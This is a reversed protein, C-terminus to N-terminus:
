GHHDSGPFLGLIPESASAWQGARRAAPHDQTEGGTPTTGGGSGKGGSDRGGWSGRPPPAAGAPLGYASFYSLEAEVETKGSVVGVERFGRRALSFRLVDGAEFGCLAAFILGFIVLPPTPVFLLLAPMGLLFASVAMGVLTGPVGGVYLLTILGAAAGFYFLLGTWARKYLLWIVPVVFAPWIIGEKVLLIREDPDPRAANEHVTFFKVAM